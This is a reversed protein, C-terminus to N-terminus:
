QPAGAWRLLLYLDDLQNNEFYLTLKGVPTPLVTWGPDAGTPPKPLTGRLLDGLEDRKTLNLTHTIVPPTGTELQRDAVTVTTPTTSHSRAVIDLNSISTPRAFVPYHEPRLDLTLEARPKGQTGNGATGSTFRAWATPFEHRASLLRTSGAADAQDILERLHVGAAIRLPEGGDRATYRIHLIVDTITMLDIPSPDVPLELSWEGVVGKLEFPLLRDDRSGGDFLGTDNVGSSTVVAETSGLMEVFRNDGDPNPAYGDGLLPSTRIRSRLL